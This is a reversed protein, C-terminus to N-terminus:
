FNIFFEYQYLNLPQNFFLSNALNFDNYIKFKKVNIKLMIKYFIFLFLDENLIFKTNEFLFNLCM